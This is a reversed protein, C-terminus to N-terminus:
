WGPLSYSQSTALDNAFKQYQNNLPTSLNNYTGEARDLNAALEKANAIAKKAEEDKGQLQMDKANVLAVIISWKNSAVTQLPIYSGKSLQNMALSTTQISSAVATRIRTAQQASVGKAIQWAQIDGAGQQILANVLSSNENRLAMAQGVVQSTQAVIQGPLNATSLNFATAAISQLVPRNMWQNSDRVLGKQQLRDIAKNIAADYVLNLAYGSVEKTALENRLTDMTKPDYIGLQKLKPVLQGFDSYTHLKSITSALDYVQGAALWAKPSTILSQFDNAFQKAAQVAEQKAREEAKRKAEAEDKQRKEDVARQTLEERTLCESGGSVCVKGSPCSRGGGCDVAGQVLCQNGSGCRMGPSCFHSGCDVADQAICHKGDRSCKNGSPCSAGNGCDVSGDLLCSNRSGCYYGPSCSHDGCVTNGAPMCRGNGACVQGPNCYGTGCDVAGQPTCGYKSCYNGPGCCMNGCEQYGAPCTSQPQPQGGGHCYTNYYNALQQAQGPDTVGQGYAALLEQLIQQCNVQANAHSISLFLLALACGLDRARM